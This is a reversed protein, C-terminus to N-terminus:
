SGLKHIAKYYETDTVVDDKDYVERERNERYGCNTCGYHDVIFIGDYDGDIVWLNALKCRPCKEDSPRPDMM